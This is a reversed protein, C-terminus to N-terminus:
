CFGGLSVRDSGHTERLNRLADGAHYEWDVGTIEVVFLPRQQSGEERGAFGM